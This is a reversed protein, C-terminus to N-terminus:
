FCEVVTNTLNQHCWYLLFFNQKKPNRWRQPPDWRDVSDSALYTEQRFCKRHGSFKNGTQTSNAKNMVGKGPYMDSCIERVSAVNEISLLTQSFVCMRSTFVDYECKCLKQAVPMLLPRAVLNFKMWTNRPLNRSDLVTPQEPSYCQGQCLLSFLLLKLWSAWVFLRGYKLVINEWGSYM